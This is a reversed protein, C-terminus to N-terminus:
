ASRAGAEREGDRAPRGLGRGRAQEWAGAIMGTVWGPDRTQIAKGANLVLTGGLAWWLAARNLLSQPMNKRHLYFQNAMNMRQLDAPALRQSSTKLHDVRARPTQLLVYGREHVRYSFDQDERFAYGALNEDFREQDFVERRFSMFWGNFSEVRRVDAAETVADAFFGRRVRGSAGPGWSDMGFLRRWGHALPNPVPPHLATARVGGLEPGWREYEALIEEHVDPAMWVDDDILFVPDGTTRDIGLNRQITLGPPAPHVYHLELGAEACLREIEARAPTEDGADVICLERPLVTQEVLSRVAVLLHDHRNRTAIVFCSGATM